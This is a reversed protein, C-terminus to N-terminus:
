YKPKRSWFRRYTQRDIWTMNPIVKPPPRAHDRAYEAFRAKAHAKAYEGSINRLIFNPNKHAWWKAARKRWTQFAPNIRYRGTMLKDLDEEPNHGLYGSTDGLTQYARMAQDRSLKPTAWEQERIRNLLRDRGTKTDKPTNHSELLFKPIIWGQSAWGGHIYEGGSVKRQVWKGNPLKKVIKWTRAIAALEQMPLANLDERTKQRIANFAETQLKAPAAWGQSAWGQQIYEQPTVERSVQRGNPLTKTIKVM